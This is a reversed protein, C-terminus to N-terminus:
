KRTLTWQVVHGEVVSQVAMDEFGKLSRMQELISKKYELVFPEGALMTPSPQYTPCIDVVVLTGGKSLLRRAERLMLYRGYKPAEHFAYMITVLDFSQAPFITRQANGLVYSTCLKVGRATQNAQNLMSQATVKADHVMNALPMMASRFQYGFSGVGERHSTIARAMAIMEPSTDVGILLDASKGFAKELARTSIGVGCCMDLIRPHPVKLSTAARLNEAIVDRAGKGNYAVVDIIKTAVPAVFAHLGGWFGTNGFTHIKNNFWYEATDDNDIGWKKRRVAHRRPPVQLELKLHQSLPVLTSPRSPHYMIDDYLAPLPAKTVQEMAKTVFEPPAIIRTAEEAALDAAITEKSPSNNVNLMDGNRFAQTLPVTTTLVVTVTAALLFPCPTKTM